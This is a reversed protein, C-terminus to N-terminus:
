QVGGVCVQDGKQGVPEQVGGVCVTTLVWRTVLLQKDSSRDVSNIELGDAGPPWIGM